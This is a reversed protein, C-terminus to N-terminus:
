YPLVLKKIDVGELELLYVKNEVGGGYGTINNNAGIVRHCPIIISIPNRGVAGGIAQASMSPQGTKLLVEEAIQGYTVTKGYPVKKLIDWVVNQFVTGRPLLKLGDTSPNKGDFYDDLWKKTDILVADDDNYFLPETVDGGFHKQGEIWLGILNLGDSALTLKGIPSLYETKYFM